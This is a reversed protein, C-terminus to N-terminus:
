RYVPSCLLSAQPRREIIRAKIHECGDNNSYIRETVPMADATASTILLVFGILM